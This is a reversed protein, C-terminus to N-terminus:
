DPESLSALTMELIFVGTTPLLLAAILGLKLAMQLQRQASARRVLSHPRGARRMGAEEPCLQQQHARM